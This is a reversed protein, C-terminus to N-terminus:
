FTPPEFGGPEVVSQTIFLPRGLPAREQQKTVLDAAVDRHLCGLPGAGSSVPGCAMSDQVVEEEVMPLSAFPRLTAVGSGPM